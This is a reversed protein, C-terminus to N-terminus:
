KTLKAVFFGPTDHIDPYFRRMYELELGDNTEEGITGLTIEPNSLKLGLENVAYAIVKENEEPELTCTSYTIIGGKRVIKSAAWLFPKQYNSANAIDRQTTEDYIKPRVGVASCSPDVIVKDANMSHTKLYEISNAKILEINELKQSEVATKMKLLRKESRDFAIIRSKNKSLIAASTSKGGPAACLDVITENPKPDLLHTVYAAPISQSFAIGSDIFGLKRLSPVKYFSELNEAAIGSEKPNKSDRKTLGIAVIQNKPSILSVKENESFKPIRKIGVGFLDSGIFVSEAAIKDTMIRPANKLYNVSNPGRTKITIMEELIPHEYGKWGFNELKELLNERSFSVLNTRISYNKVPKSLACVIKKAREVGYRNCFRNWLFNSFTQTEIDLRPIKLNIL